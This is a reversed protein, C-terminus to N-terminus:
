IKKSSSGEKVGKEDEVMTAPVQARGPRLKGRLADTFTESYLGRYLVPQLGFTVWLIIGAPIGM